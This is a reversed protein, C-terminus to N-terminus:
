RFIFIFYLILAYKLFLIIKNILNKKLRENGYYIPFNRPFEKLDDEKEIIGYFGIVKHTIDSRMNKIWNYLTYNQYQENYKKNFNVCYYNKYGIVDKTLINLTFNQFGLPIIFNNSITGNSNIIYKDKKTDYLYDYCNVEKKDFICIIIDTNYDKSNINHVMFDFGFFLKYGNEIAEILSESNTYVKIYAELTINPILAISFNTKDYGKTSYYLKTGNIDSFSIDLDPDQQNENNYEPPILKSFTYTLIYILIYIKMSNYYYPM